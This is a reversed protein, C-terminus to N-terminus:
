TCDVNTEDPHRELACQLELTRPATPLTSNMDEPPETLSRMALAMTSSASRWPLNIGPLLTTMSGVEPLVPMPRAMAHAMLTRGDFGVKVSPTSFVVSILAIRHNDRQRVLHRKHASAGDHELISLRMVPQLLFFGRQASQASFNHARRGFRGPVRRLTVYTIV